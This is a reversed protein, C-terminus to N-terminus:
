RDPRVKQWLDAAMTGHAELAPGAQSLLASLDASKAAPTWETNILDTLEKHYDVEHRLFLVDFAIDPREQLSKVVRAHEARRAGDSGSKLTVNLQMAVDRALQRALGHESVLQRAFDRVEKSHGREMALQACPLDASVMEEFRTIIAADDPAAHVGPPTAATPATASLNAVAVLLLITKM